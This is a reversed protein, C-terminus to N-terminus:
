LKKIFASKNLKSKIKQLINRVQSEQTYPGIVVTYIDNHIVKYPLSLQIIKDLYRQSPKLKYSGIQIYYNKKVEAIPNKIISISTPKKIEQSNPISLNTHKVKPSYGRLYRANGKVLWKIIENQLKAGNYRARTSNVIIVVTYLNGKIDKVYGAINKVNKLTGTKMWARNKVITNRFRRKITGDKGAISLTNMWRKKYLSSANDYMLSLHTANLKAVRSLGSGNDIKLVGSALAKQSSLIAKIAKEGKATTAPAGYVKAGLHLLLHRAYLNNSKKATKAIIQELPASYHTFLEIAHSPKKRLKLTGSVRINNKKLKDKLAYYFSKYPKSIVKCINRTKCHKSIKGKLIMTASSKDEVIKIGPWSYRGKCPKNVHQLKNILKYSQDAHKRYATKRKPQICVTSIRENFMMADPMANYASYTNNDFHSNNRNGVKFYSRDIIINGKIGKIGEKRISSVISKLHRSSLSPDGFGKVILDGYLVGGKIRGTAYFKTPWRYDFGLKLLASYTTMAKVVSAPSRTTKANLSVLVKGNTGAEKIYISLDKKSIKSKQILTNIAQPLGFLWASSFIYLFIIQLFFKKQM